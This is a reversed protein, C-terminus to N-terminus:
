DHTGGAGLEPPALPFSPRPSGAGAPADKGAGGSNPAPPFEELGFARRIADLAAAGDEAEPASKIAVTAPHAIKNTLGQMAAEVARWDKDALGPLRARLRDLEAQRVDDLRRRVAVVLPAVDLSREWRLYETVSSEVIERARAVEGARSQRAGAVLEQLDDINYLYANELKGVSAEVDRPVAIDVLYLPRGRRARMVEQMLARTIIPHPAATSCVVIDATTLLQPLDDFRRATGGFQGALAVAKEYTRNAVLIAPAGAAQLHRATVESMKGAGLVLVTNGSLTEGFIQNALQVAAAGVSFTGRAIGTETRARKGTVLAEQFLKNLRTGVTRAAQAAELATKVQRQIDPEGLIMSDLGSAVAFLHSAAAGARYCYLHGDFERRSLGHWGALFEALADELPGADPMAVAYAETRNCTSLLAGEQVDPLATLSGLARPLERELIALKERVAIPASHYNIGLVLLSM